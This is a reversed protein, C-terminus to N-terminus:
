RGFQAGGNVNLIEGTIFGSKDSALFFVAEAIENPEGLRGLPITPLTKTKRDLPVGKGGFFGTDDIVGPAVCNVTIGEPALAKTLTRSLGHIGSKAASYAQGSVGGLSSGAFAALSSINIVRGNSRAFHKIFAFTVYFVSSLNTAVIQNWAAAADPFSPDDGIRVNGGANNVLIDIYGSEKIIQDRAKEIASIDTVDATICVMDSFDKATEKLGSIQRGLIYVKDGSKAFRRAIERGIGSGAGTVVVVRKKSM